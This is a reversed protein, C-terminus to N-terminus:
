QMVERMSIAVSRLAPVDVKTYILTSQSTAHGLIDGITKLPRGARLLRTALTHRFLYLGRAGQRNALGARRLTRGMVHSFNNGPSFPGFPAKHRVFIVRSDTRPRGCRIYARLAKGIERLLPLVLERRTKSQELVIRRHSWDIHDLSLQRIDSARMGYRAALLLLAYDRRGIASSRDVSGLLVEVEPDTLVDPLSALRYTRITPVAGTLDVPLVGRVYTWRFFSRLTHAYTRRTSPRLGKLGTLFERIRASDVHEWETVGAKQLFTSFVALQRERKRLTGRGVGRYSTLFALYPPV